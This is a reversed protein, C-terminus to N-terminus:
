VRNKEGHGASKHRREGAAVDRLEEGLGLPWAAAFCALTMGAGGLAVAALQAPVGRALWPTLLKRLALGAGAGATGALGPAGLWRWLRLPLGCSSLLRGTNAACTYLSSLLIVFLFGKMGFRPLLLVVGAIRLCSDWMSYRFVAKQEGMGKMAGDVMSELYMLPMAPGLIVLYSGAEASGYLAEALPQGWVWFAAGALASFYGTLRLMRDILVSLRRSQGRLHAQTIEPMLLVSLSGLLGFPFTLLPLAMGKLNGYQTVAEARGGSCQLYVALCAPVLMNEATHLASALCRGGEVPWLIDWLRRGPDHPRQAPQSGFCRRAERCYFLAMLGTSVAESAATAGLVATCRQGADWGLADARGLAAWVIGIRVTQEALQSLVNPEVRRRAIFFGRLVSSVAMWPLGLSSVRLAGAARADGLWWRAALGALGFQAALATVGLGAGALLLRRLMGRAEAPSRALEEAMLRTAAVSVGATALTVFLSYVALVLQYLGMGEGGLANALWIRLGMGALRLLVDAGTMLAANKLYSKGVAGGGKGARIKKYTHVGSQSIHAAAHTTEKGTKHYSIYQIQRLTKQWVPDLFALLFRVGTGRGHAVLCHAFFTGM